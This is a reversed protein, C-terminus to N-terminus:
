ISRQRRGLVHLDLQFSNDSGEPSSLPTSRRVPSYHRPFAQHPPYGNSVIALVAYYSRSLLPRRAERTLIHGPPILWNTLPSVLRRDRAPRLPHDAWQFRSPGVRRCCHPINCLPRLGSAAMGHIFFAKPNYLVKLLSSPPTSLVHM